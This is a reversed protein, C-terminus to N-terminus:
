EDEYKEKVEKAAKMVHSVIHTTHHNLKVYDNGKL